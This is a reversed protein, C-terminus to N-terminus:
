HGAHSECVIKLRVRCLTNSNCNRNEMFILHRCIRSIPLWDCNIGEYLVTSSARNSVCVHYPHDYYSACTSSKKIVTIIYEFYLSINSRFHCCNVHRASEEFSMLRNTRRRHHRNRPSTTDENHRERDNLDAM